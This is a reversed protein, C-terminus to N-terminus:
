LERINTFEIRTPQDPMFKEKVHISLSIMGSIVKVKEKILEIADVEHEAEVVIQAEFNYEVTVSFKKM